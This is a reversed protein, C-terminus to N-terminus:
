RKKTGKRAPKSVNVQTVAVITALKAAEGDEKWQITVESGEKGVLDRVRSAITAEAQGPTRVPPAELGMVTTHDDFKFTQEMGNEIRISFTRRPADVRILEGRIEQNGAKGPMAEPKPATRPQYTDSGQEYGARVGDDRQCAILMFGSLICVLSFIFLKRM